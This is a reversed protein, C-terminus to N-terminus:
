VRLRRRPWVSVACMQRVLPSRLGRASIPARLMHLDNKQNTFESSNEQSKHPRQRLKNLSSTEPQPFNHSTLEARESGVGVLIKDSNKRWPSQMADM